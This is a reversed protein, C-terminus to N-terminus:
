SHKGIPKSINFVQSSHSLFLFVIVDFRHTSHAICHSNSRPPALKVGYQGCWGVSHVHEHCLHSWFDMSSDDDFGEYRLLALYGEIRVISAFWFVHEASETSCYRVCDTNIVELKTGAVLQM